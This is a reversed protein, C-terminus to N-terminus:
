APAGSRPIVDTGRGAGRAGRGAGRAGRGAGRAGRGADRAARANGLVGIYIGRLGLYDEGRLASSSHVFAHIEQLAREVEHDELGERPRRGVAVPDRAPDLVARAVHQLHLFPREVRGEVLQLLASQDGGLPPNTLVVPARLEVAQCCGSLFLEERRVIRPGAEGVGDELHQAGCGRAVLTASGCAGFALRAAVQRLYRRKQPGRASASTSSSSRKWM